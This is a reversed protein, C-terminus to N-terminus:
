TSQHIVEFRTSCRILPGLSAKSKAKKMAREEAKKQRELEKQAKREAIREERARRKSQNIYSRMEPDKTIELAKQWEKKAEEYKGEKYLLNGKDFHQRTLEEKEQKEKLIEQEKLKGDVKKLNKKAEKIIRKLSYGYSPVEKETMKQSVVM